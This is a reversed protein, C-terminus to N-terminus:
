ELTILVQNKGEQKAKYLTKDAMEFFEDRTLEPTYKAIGASFTIYRDTFDFVHNKFEGLANELKKRAAMIDGGLFIVAFEEGGYRYAVDQEDCHKKITKALHVLVRDGCDHGYADNISKFNDVDLMALYLTNEGTYAKIQKDLQTVFSNHNYLGTMHDRLLDQLLKDNQTAQSEITTYNAISFSTYIIGCLFAIIAFGFLIFLHIYTTLTVSQDLWFAVAVAGIIFLSSVFSEILLRRDNFIASLVIPFIFACSTITYERHSIAVLFSTILAAVIITENKRQRSVDPNRIISRAVIHTITNAIIPSVVCFWLYHNDISFTEVKSLVLIIYAIIEFLSITVVTIAHANTLQNRYRDRLAQNDM